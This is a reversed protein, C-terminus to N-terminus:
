SGPALLQKEHCNCAANKKTVASEGDDARRRHRAKQRTGGHSRSLGAYTGFAQDHDKLAARRITQIDDYRMAFRLVIRHPWTDVNRPLIHEIEIAEEPQM